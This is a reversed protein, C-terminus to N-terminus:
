EAVCIPELPTPKCGLLIYEQNIGLDCLSILMIKCCRKAKGSNYDVVAVDLDSPYQQLISILQKNTM